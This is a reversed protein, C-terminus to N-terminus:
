VTDSVRERCSARGIEATRVSTTSQRKQVRGTNFPPDLYILTFMGDPLEALAPLNDGQIVRSANMSDPAPDPPQAPM